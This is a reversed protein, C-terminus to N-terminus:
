GMWFPIGLFPLARQADTLRRTIPDELALKGEEILMLAAVTTIPRTM